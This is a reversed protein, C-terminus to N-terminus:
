PRGNATAQWIKRSTSDDNPHTGRRKVRGGAAGPPHSQVTGCQGAPLEGSRVLAYVLSSKVNLIEQVQELMLMRPFGPAASTAPTQPSDDTRKAM